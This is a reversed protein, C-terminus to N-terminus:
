EHISEALRFGSYQWRDHPFYFNRYSKRIHDKPTICSGGKLVFQNCMFKSNYESLGGEWSKYGEYPIYNSSTWEWLDGYLQSVSDKSFNQLPEFNNNELFNGDLNLKSLLYELEYETPM